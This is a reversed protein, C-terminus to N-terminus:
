SNVGQLNVEPCQAQSQSNPQINVVFNQPMINITCGNLGSFMTGMMNGGNQTSSKVELQGSITPRTVQPAYEEGLTLVKSVAKKQEATPHEYVELAKTSKHGTISKVM